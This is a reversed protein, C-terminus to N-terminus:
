CETLSRKLGVVLVSAFSMLGAGMIWLLTELSLNQIKTDVQTTYAATSYLTGLVIAAIQPSAVIWNLGADNCRRLTVAITPLLTFMGFLLSIPGENSSSRGFLATDIVSIPLWAVITFATWWWYEARSSYGNFQGYKSFCTKVAKPFSMGDNTNEHKDRNNM